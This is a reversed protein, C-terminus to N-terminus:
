TRKPWAALGGCELTSVQKLRGWRRNWLCLGRQLGFCVIQTPRLQDVFAVTFDCLLLRDEVDDQHKRWLFSPMTYCFSAFAWFLHEGQFALKQKKRFLIQPKLLLYNWVRALQQKKVECPIAEQHLETTRMMLGCLQETCPCLPLCAKVQDSKSSRHYRLFLVSSWSGRGEEPCCQLLSSPSSYVSHGQYESGKPALQYEQPRKGM